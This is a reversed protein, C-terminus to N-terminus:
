KKGGTMMGSMTNASIEGAEKMGDKRRQATQQQNNAAGGYAGSLGTARGAQMDYTATPATFRNHVQADNATQTNADSVAQRGTTNFQGAANQADANYQQVGLGTQQNYQNMANQGQSNYQLAQNQAGTNYQNMANANQANFRSIADQAQAVQAQEGFDQNRMSGALNGSNMIADLARQQAMGAIDLGSQSARDTAAQSSDLMQLLEMGSGGMGRESMGQMIAERRGRDAQAVDGQISAMNADDRLTMGGGSIIDDLASLSEFQEDKLRPDVAIDSFNSRDVRELDALRPDYGEFNLADPATITSPNWDGQWEFQAPDIQELGPIKVDQWSEIGKDAYNRARRESGGTIAEDMFDIFSAM